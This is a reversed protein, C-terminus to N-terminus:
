MKGGKKKKQLGTINTWAAGYKISEVNALNLYPYEDKLYNYVATSSGKTEPKGNLEIPDDILLLWIKKALIPSVVDRLNKFEKQPLQDTVETWATRGKIQWIKMLSVNTVDVGDEKLYNHVIRPSGNTEPRGNLETPDDILLLWIKKVVDPTMQQNGFVRDSDFTTNGWCRNSKISQIIAKTLKPYDDKLYEYAVSPAGNTEPRGNLETPDDILLLWIKKALEETIKSSFHEEGKRIKSHGILYSHRANESYSVWELNKAHDNLKNGDIHNVICRSVSFGGVFEAAVLRNMNRQVIQHKEDTIVSQKLSVTVYNKLITGKLISGVVVNRINGHNSVEYRGQEVDIDTVPKWIEVDEVWELNDLSIDRTDGNIHNVTIFKGILERPIPIFASAILEDIPFLQLHEDTNLIPAFDYGNTSHYEARFSKDDDSGEAKIDGYQSILYGELVRPDRIPKWRLRPM